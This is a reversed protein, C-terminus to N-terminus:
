PLSTSTKAKGQVNCGDQVKVVASHTALVCCQLHSIWYLISGITVADSHLLMANASVLCWDQRIGETREHCSKVLIVYVNDCM